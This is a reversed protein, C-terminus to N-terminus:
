GTPRRGRSPTPTPRRGRRARGARGSSAQLARRARCTSRRRCARLLPRRAPPNPASGGRWRGGSGSARRLRDLFVEEKHQEIVDLFNVLDPREDALDRCAYLEAYLGLIPAVLSIKDIAETCEGKFVRITEQIWEEEKGEEFFNQMRECSEATTLWIQATTNRLIHLAAGRPVM